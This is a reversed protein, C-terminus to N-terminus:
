EPLGFRKKTEAISRRAGDMVTKLNRILMRDPYADELWDVADAFHMSAVIARDGDSLPIKETEEHGDLLAEIKAISRSVYERSMGPDIDDLFGTSLRLVREQMAKM